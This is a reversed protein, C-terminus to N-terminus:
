SGLASFCGDEMMMMKFELYNVMGDGDLDVNNIMKECDELSSEQKIGLSQMVSRLEEVTIFGDGNLDFVGFAEKMDQEKHKEEMLDRCLAGFGDIDLYGDDDIEVNDTMQLLDKDTVNIGLNQLSNSLEKTTINGDGNHDFSQFLRKLESQNMAM